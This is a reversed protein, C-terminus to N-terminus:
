KQLAVQHHHIMTMILLIPDKPRNHKDNRNEVFM